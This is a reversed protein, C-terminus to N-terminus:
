PIEKRVQKPSLKWTRAESSARRDSTQQAPRQAHGALDARSSLSDHANEDIPSLAPTTLQGNIKGELSTIYSDGSLELSNSPTM